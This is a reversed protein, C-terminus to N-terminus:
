EVSQPPEPKTPPSIMAFIKIFPLLIAQVPTSIFWQLIDVIAYILRYAVDFIFPIVVGIITAAYDLIWIIAVVIWCIGCFIALVGKFAYQFIVAAALASNIPVVGFLVWDVIGQLFPTSEIKGLQLQRSLAWTLLSFLALLMVLLAFGRYVGRGTESKESIDTFMSEKEFLEFTIIFGVLLAALSGALVALDYKAIWGTLQGSYLDLLALTNAVAIVDAIVFLIFLALFLLTAAFRFPHKKDFILAHLNTKIWESLGKLSAAFPKRLTDRFPIAVEEMFERPYLPVNRPEPDKRFIVPKIILKGIRDLVAKFRSTWAILIFAWLAIIIWFMPTHLLNYLIEGFANM